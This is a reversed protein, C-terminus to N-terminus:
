CNEPKAPAPLDGVEGQLICVHCFLAQIVPSYFIGDPIDRFIEFILRTKILNCFVNM